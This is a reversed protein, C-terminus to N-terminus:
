EYRLAVTPDVRSARRAPIYCAALAVLTFLVAVVGFTLPDNPGVGYLLSRMFRTLALAAGVGVFVGATVIKFGEGLVLQLVNQPKATRCPLSKETHGRSGCSILMELDTFKAPHPENAEPLLADM